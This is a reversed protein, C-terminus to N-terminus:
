RFDEMQWEQWTQYGRRPRLFIIVGLGAACVLGLALSPLILADM